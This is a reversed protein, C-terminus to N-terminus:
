EEEIFFSKYYDYEEYETLEDSFSVQSSVTYFVKDGDQPTYEVSFTYTQSSVFEDYIVYSVFAANVNLDDKAVKEGTFESIAQAYASLVDDGPSTLTVTVEGSGKFEELQNENFIAEKAYSEKYRYLEYESIISNFEKPTIDAEVEAGSSIDYVKEGNSYFSATVNFDSSTNEPTTSVANISVFVDEMNNFGCIVGGTDTKYVKGGQTVNATTDFRLLVESQSETNIIAKKVMKYIESHNNVAILVIVLSVTLVLAVASLVIPLMQKKKKTKKVQENSM